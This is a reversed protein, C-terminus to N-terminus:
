DPPLHDLTTEQLTREIKVQLAGAADGLDREAPEEVARVVALATIDSLPAALRYGSGKQSLVLGARALMQLVKQAYATPIERASAVREAPIDENPFRALESLCSIAYRARQSLKIM